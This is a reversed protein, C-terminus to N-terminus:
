KLPDPSRNEERVEGPDIEPISHAKQLEYESVGGISSGGQEDVRETTVRIQPLFFSLANLRLLLNSVFRVQMSTIGVPPHRKSRGWKFM